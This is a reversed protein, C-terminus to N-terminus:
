FEGGSKWAAYGYDRKAAAKRADNWNSAIKMAGQYTADYGRTREEGVQQGFALSHGASDRAGQMSYGAMKHSADLGQSSLDQLPNLSDYYRSLFKDYENSAYDQAYRTAGKIAAGSLVGGKAAASRAVAKQGEKMRFDYGPGKKFDGPGKAIKAQLQGLATLGAQRWPNVDNRAQTTAAATSKQAQALYKQYMALNLDSGKRKAAAASKVDGEYKRAAGKAKAVAASRMQKADSRAKRLQGLKAQYQRYVGPPWGRGGIKFLSKLQALEKELETAM